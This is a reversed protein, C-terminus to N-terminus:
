REARVALLLTKDHDSHESMKPGGLLASLEDPSADPEAAYAFLPDFFSASPAGGAHIAALSCGDTFVAVAEVDQVPDSVRVLEQWHESTLPEVENVYESPAPASLVVLGDPTRVVASGDGIHAARATGDQWAVVILTCAFSRLASEPSLGELAARAAAVADALSAGAVAAEVAAEVAERAGEDSRPASGLGDAVALVVNGAEIARWAFADQCPTGTRAHSEGAVRAGLVATRSGAIPSFTDM